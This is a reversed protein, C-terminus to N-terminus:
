RGYFRYTELEHYVESLAKFADQDEDSVSICLRKFRRESLAREIDALTIDTNVIHLDSVPLGLVVTADMAEMQTNNLNLERLRECRNITLICAPSINSSSLNLRELMSLLEIGSLDSSSVTSRSLSLSIISSDAILELSGNIQCDVLRLSRLRKCEGIARLAEDTILGHVISLDLLETADSLAEIESGVIPTSDILLARVRANKMLCRFSGPELQCHELILRMDCKARLCRAVDENSIRISRAILGYRQSSRGLLVFGRKELSIREHKVIRTADISVLTVAIAVLCIVALATFLQNRSVHVVKRILM